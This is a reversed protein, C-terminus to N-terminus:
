ETVLSQQWSTTNTAFHIAQNIENASTSNEPQPSQLQDTRKSCSDTDAPDIVSVFSIKYGLDTMNRANKIETPTTTTKAIGNRIGTECDGSRECDPDALTTEPGIGPSSGGIRTALKLPKLEEDV